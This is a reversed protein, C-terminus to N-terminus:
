KSKSKPNEKEEVLIEITGTGPVSRVRLSCSHDFIHHQCDPRPCLADVCAPCTKSPFTKGIEAVCTCRHSKRLPVLKNYYDYLAYEGTSKGNKDVYVVLSNPCGDGRCCFPLMPVAVLLLFIFLISQKKM